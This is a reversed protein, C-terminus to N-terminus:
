NALRAEQQQVFRYATTGGAMGGVSVEISTHSKNARLGRSQIRAALHQNVRSQGLQGLSAVHGNHGYARSNEQHHSAHGNIGSQSSDM